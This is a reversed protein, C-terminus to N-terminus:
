QKSLQSILFLNKKRRRIYIPYFIGSIFWLYFFFGLLPPIWRRFIFFIYTKYKTWDRRQQISDHNFKICTSHVYPHTLNTHQTTNSILLLLIDPIQPTCKLSFNLWCVIWVPNVVSLISLKYIIIWINRILIQTAEPVQSSLFLIMFNGHEVWWITLGDINNLPLSWCLGHVYLLKYKYVHIYTYLVFVKM